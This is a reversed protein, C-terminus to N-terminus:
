AVSSNVAFATYNALCPPRQPKGCDRCAAAFATTPGDSIPESQRLASCIQFKGKGAFLRENIPLDAHDSEPVCGSSQGKAPLIDVRQMMGIDEHNLTAPECIVRRQLSPSEFGRDGRLTVITELGGREIAAASGSVSEKALTSL